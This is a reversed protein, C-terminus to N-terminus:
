WYLKQYNAFNDDITFAYRLMNISFIVVNAITVGDPYHDVVYAISDM